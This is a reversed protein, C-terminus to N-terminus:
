VAGDIQLLACPYCTHLGRQRNGRASNDGSTCAARPSSIFSSDRKTAVPYSFSRPFNSRSPKLEQIGPFAASALSSTRVRWSMKAADCVTLEKLFPEPLYRRGQQLLHSCGQSVHQLCPSDTGALGQPVSVSARLTHEKLILNHIKHVVDGLFTYAGALFINPGHLVNGHRLGECLDACEASKHPM